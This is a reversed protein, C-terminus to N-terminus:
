AASGAAALGANLVALLDDLLAGTGPRLRGGSGPRVRVGAELLETRTLVVRAIQGDFVTNPDARRVTGDTDIVLM